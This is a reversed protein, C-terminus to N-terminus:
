VGLIQTLLYGSLGHSIGLPASLYSKEDIAVPKLFCSVSVPYQAHFDPLRTTAFLPNVARVDNLYEEDFPLPNKQSIAGRIRASVYYCIGDLGRELTPDNLRRLNIQMIKRDIEECVENGDGGIFGNQLLYEVGWGIGSLGSDFHFPMEAHMQTWLTDLLEEGAETYVACGTHRGYEFFCLAMGMKGHLLGPNKVFSSQLLLRHVMKEKLDFAVM